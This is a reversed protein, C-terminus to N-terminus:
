ATPAPAADAPAEPAAPAPEAAPAAEPAPEAATTQAPAAATTQFAKLATAAADTGAKLREVQQEIAPGNDKPMVALAAVDKQVEALLSGIVGLAADTSVRLDEIADAMKQTELRIIARIPVALLEAVHRAM